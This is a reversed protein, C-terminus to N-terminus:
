NDYRPHVISTHSIGISNSSNLTLSISDTTSSVEFSNVQDLLVQGNLTLNSGPRGDWTVIGTEGARDPHACTWQVTRGNTIVITGEDAYTFEKVLRNMAVQIKQGDVVADKTAVYNGTTTVFLMSGFVLAISLLALVAVVELLTFGSRPRRLSTM